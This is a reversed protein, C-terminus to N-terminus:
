EHAHGVGSFFSAYDNITQGELGPATNIELVFAKQMSDNWVVDVAGFDLDTVTFAAKAADVVKKPPNLNNRQFLFGNDHSRVRWDKVEKTADRIKRQLCILAIGDALRGLHVRYEAAKKIYKVYLPCDILSDAADAITIGEGSHGALISRCVVPYADVPVDTKTTWFPPIVGVQNEKMKEFFLKKNSAAKIVQPKNMLRVNPPVTYDDTSGWNVVVDGDRPTYSSNQLLLVKGQLTLALERASHSGQKYPLIRFRM